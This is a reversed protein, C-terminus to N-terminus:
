SDTWYTVHVYYGSGNRNHGTTQSVTFSIENSSTVHSVGVTSYQGSSYNISVNVRPNNIGNANFPLDGVNIKDGVAVAGTTDTGFQAWAHVVAGVKVYKGVAGSAVNYASGGLDSPTWDGEEYDNLANAVATDSNFTLGHTNITAKKSTGVYFETYNDNYHKVAWDGGADLLGVQNADNAYVWGRTTGGDTQLKMEVASGSSRVDAGGATTSLRLTNNHYLEVAGDGVAKINTEYSGATYNTLTFSNDANSYMRWHDANDDGDDASMLISAAQGENGTIILETQDSTNGGKINFGSGHTWATKSDNHYLDVAANANCVIASETGNVKITANGASGLVLAGSTTKLNGVSSGYYLELQNSGGFRAKADDAFDVNADLTEIHEAGVADDAILAGTIQDAAIHATDISGDTYHESDIADDAIKAGTVADATITLAGSGTVEGTHTANTSKATNATRETNIANALKDTTVADDAIAGTKLQTLAM